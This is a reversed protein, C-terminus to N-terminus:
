SEVPVTERLLNGPVLAMGDLPYRIRWGPKDVYITVSNGTSLSSSSSTSFNWSRNCADSVGTEVLTVILGPELIKEPNEGLHFVQGRLERASQTAFPSALLVATPSQHTRPGSSESVAALGLTLLTSERALLAPSASEETCSEGDQAAVTALARAM